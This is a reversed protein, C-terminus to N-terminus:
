KNINKLVKNTIFEPSHKFIKNLIDKITLCKHYLVENTQNYRVIVWVGSIYDIDIVFSKENFSNNVSIQSDSIRDCPVKVQNLSKTIWSHKLGQIMGKDTNDGWGLDSLVKSYDSFKMNLKEIDIRFPIQTVDLEEFLKIYKM